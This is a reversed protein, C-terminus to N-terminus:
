RCGLGARRKFSEIRMRIDIDVVGVQIVSTSQRTIESCSNKLIVTVTFYRSICVRIPSTKMIRIYISIDCGSHIDVVAAM